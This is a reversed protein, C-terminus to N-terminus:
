SAPAASPLDSNWTDVICKWNGDAQKKRIELNKGRDTVPQDDAGNTTMGYAGYLYALAGSRAVEVKVPQWTV